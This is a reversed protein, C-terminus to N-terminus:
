YHLKHCVWLITWHEWIWLSTWSFNCNMLKYVAVRLVLHEINELSIYLDLFLLIDTSLDDGRPESGCSSPFQVHDHHHHHHHHHNHFILEVFSNEQLFRMCRWTNTADISKLTPDVNRSVRRRITWGRVLRFSCKLKCQCMYGVRAVYYIGLFLM